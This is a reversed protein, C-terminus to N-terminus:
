FVNNDSSNSSVKSFNVGVTNVGLKRRIPLSRQLTVTRAEKLLSQFASNVSSSSEAASVERFQCNYTACLKQAEEQSVVSYDNQFDNWEFISLRLLKWKVALTRSWSQKRYPFNHLLLSTKVKFTTKINSWSGCFIGPRCNFLRDHLWWGM